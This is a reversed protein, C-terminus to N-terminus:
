PTVAGTTETYIYRTSLHGLAHTLIHPYNRPLRELYNIFGEYSEAEWHEKEEENQEEPRSWKMESLLLALKREKLNEILHAAEWDEVRIFAM